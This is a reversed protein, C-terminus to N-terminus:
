QAIELCLKDIVARIESAPGNSNNVMISFAVPGHTKSEIYGSLANVHTLSGTKAKIRSANAAPKRSRGTTLFRKELTGDEAAIPLLATWQDRYPSRYLHDLLRITASPTILTLRSLGSGDRFDYDEKDIGIEELLRKLEDIGADSTGERIAQFGVERLVLEAHLNESVKNVVQLIEFLTRSERRALEVAPLPDAYPQGTLRHSAAPQGHIAIGRRSLAEHLATAAFLAPDDIAITESRGTSKPSIRGQLQIQRSGPARLVDLKREGAETRIRNDIWYYELAPNLSIRAPLGEEEAPKITVQIANDNITLASVPSGYEWIADDIAWGDPYPIWPWRTDDGVIRGDIRKVGRRAIQEALDDIAALPDLTNPGKEYPYTRWSMTPDGGGVLRLDGSIVGNEPATAAVVTTRFRYEPGLRLLALASSYLKTNSAPIFYRETNIAALTEGNSLAVAKVGWNARASHAEEDILAQLRPTLDEAACLASLSFLLSTARMM